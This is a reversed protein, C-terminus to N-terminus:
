SARKLKETCFAWSIALQSYYSARSAAALNSVFSSYIYGCASFGAGDPAARVAPKLKTVLVCFLLYTFVFSEVACLLTRHGATASQGRDCAESETFQPCRRRRRRRARILM